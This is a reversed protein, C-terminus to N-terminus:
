RRARQANQILQLDCTSAQRHCCGPFLIMAAVRSAEWMCPKESTEHHLVVYRVKNQAFRVHVELHSSFRKLEINLWNVLLKLHINSNVLAKRTHGDYYKPSSIQALRKHTEVQLIGSQYFTSIKWIALSSHKKELSHLLPFQPLM